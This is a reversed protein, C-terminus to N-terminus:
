ELDDLEEDADLIAAVVEADEEDSFVPEQGDATPEPEDHQEAVNAAAEPVVDAYPETLVEPNQAAGMAEAVIAETVETM